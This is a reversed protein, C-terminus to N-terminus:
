GRALGPNLRRARAHVFCVPSFSSWVQTDSFRLGQLRLASMTFSNILCNVALIKLMQLTTM